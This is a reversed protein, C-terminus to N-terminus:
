ASPPPTWYFGKVVLGFLNGEAEADTRPIHQGIEINATMAVQQIPRADQYITEIWDLRYNMGNGIPTVDVNSVRSTKRETIFKDVPNKALHDGMRESVVDSGYADATMFNNNYAILDSPVTRWLTIWYRVFQRRKTEDLMLTGTIPSVTVVEGTTRNTEFQVFKLDGLTALQHNDYRQVGAYVTMALFGAGLFWAARTSSAGQGEYAWRARQYEDPEKWKGRPLVKGAIRRIFKIM